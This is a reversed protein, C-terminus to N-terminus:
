VSGMEDRRTAAARLSLSWSVAATLSVQRRCHWVESSINTAEVKKDKRRVVVRALGKNRCHGHESTLVNISPPPHPEAQPRSQATVIKHGTKIVWTDSSAANTRYGGGAKLWRALPKWGKSGTFTAPPPHSPMILFNAFVRCKRPMILFNAIRRPSEDEPHGCGDLDWQSWVGFVKLGCFRSLNKRLGRLKKGVFKWDM